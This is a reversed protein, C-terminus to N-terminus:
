VLAAIQDLKEKIDGKTICAKIGLSDAKALHEDMYVNSMFVIPFSKDQILISEAISPADMDPLNYDIVVMAHRQPDFIDIGEQGTEAFEVDFNYSGREIKHKILVILLEDDEIYLICKSM